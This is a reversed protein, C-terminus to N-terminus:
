SSYNPAKIMENVDLPKTFVRVGSPTKGTTFATRWFERNQKAGFVTTSLGRDVWCPLAALSRLFSEIREWLEESIKYQLLREKDLYKGTWAYYNELVLRVWQMINGLIEERAVRWARLHAEPIAEGRQVKTEIQRGGVDPDWQSIFFVKAFTNMLRVVQEKELQRPNAGQDLGEGIPTGLAKKYLFEAFFTREINTYALPRDAAKGSWEVFEM